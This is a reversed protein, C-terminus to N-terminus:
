RLPLMTRFGFALHNGKLTYKRASSRRITTKATNWPLRFGTM